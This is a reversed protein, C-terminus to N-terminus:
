AWWFIWCASLVTLVLFLVWAPCLDRYEMDSFPIRYVITNESSFPKNVFMLVLFMPGVVYAVWTVTAWISDM